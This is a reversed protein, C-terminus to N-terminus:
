YFEVVDCIYVEQEDNGAERRTEKDQKPTRIVRARVDKNSDQLKLFYPLEVGKSSTAATTRRKYFAQLEGPYTDVLLRQTSDLLFGGLDHHDPSLM